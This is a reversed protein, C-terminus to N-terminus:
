FHSLTEKNNNLFDLLKKSLEIESQTNKSNKFFVNGKHNESNCLKNITLRRKTEEATGKGGDFIQIDSSFCSRINNSVFPYHTCGLVICDIKENKFPLFLNKLYNDIKGNDFDGKEILEALGACPLPIINAKDSFSDMLNKFKEKKLTMPTAMVLIRANRRSLVAPKIAPEIGIIPIDAYKERLTKAAVSTATNCAIVIAKVNYKFLINICSESLTLIEDESKTGYPANASDGFYIFDENPLVKILESLVSIGGIGSDFVGIPRNDMIEEQLITKSANEQSMLAACLIKEHRHMM